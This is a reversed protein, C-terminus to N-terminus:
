QVIGNLADHAIGDRQDIAGLSERLRDVSVKICAHARVRHRARGAADDMENCQGALSCQRSAVRCEESAHGLVSTSNQLFTSFISSGRSGVACSLTCTSKSLSRALNPFATSRHTRNTLM